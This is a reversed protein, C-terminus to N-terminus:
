SPRLYGPSDALSDLQEFMHSDASLKTPIYRNSIPCDPRLQMNPTEAPFTYVIPELLSQAPASAPAPPPPPFLKESIRDLLRRQAAIIEQFFLAEM